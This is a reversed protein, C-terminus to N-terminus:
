LLHGLDPFELRRGWNRWVKGKFNRKGKQKRLEEDVTADRFTEGSLCEERWPEGMESM